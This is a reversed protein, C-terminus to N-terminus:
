WVQPVFSIQCAFSGKIYWGKQVIALRIEYLRTLEIGDAHVNLVDLRHCLLDFSLGFEGQVWIKCLICRAKAHPPSHVELFRAALLKPMLFGSTMSIGSHLAM